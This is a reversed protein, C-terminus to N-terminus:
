VIIGTDEGNNEGGSQKQKSKEASNVTVYISENRETNNNLLPFFAMVNLLNM